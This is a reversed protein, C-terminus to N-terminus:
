ETATREEIVDWVKHMIEAVTTTVTPSHGHPEDELDLLADHLYSHLSEESDEADHYLTITPQGGYEEGEWADAAELAIRAVDKPDMPGDVVATQELAAGAAALRGPFHGSDLVIIPVYKAMQQDNLPRTEYGCWEGARREYVDGSKDRIVATNPLAALDLWNDVTQKM